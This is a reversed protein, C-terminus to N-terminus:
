KIDLKVINSIIADANNVVMLHLRGYSSCVRYSSSLCDKMTKCNCINIWRYVGTNKIITYVNNNLRLEYVAWLVYKYSSRQIGFISYFYERDVKNLINNGIGLIEEILDESSGFIYDYNSLYTLEVVYLVEGVKVLNYEDIGKIKYVDLCFGKYVTNLTSTVTSLKLDKLSSFSYDLVKIGKCTYDLLLHQTNVDIYLNYVLRKLNSYLM